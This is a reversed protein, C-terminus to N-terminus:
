DVEWFYLYVYNYVARGWCVCKPFWEAVQKKKKKITCRQCSANPFLSASWKKYLQMTKYKISLGLNKFVLRKNVFMFIIEKNKAVVYAAIFFSKKM